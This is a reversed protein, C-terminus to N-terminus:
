LFSGEKLCSINFPTIVCLVKPTGKQLSSQHYQLLSPCRTKLSRDGLDLQTVFTVVSLLLGPLGHTKACSDRSASPANSYQLCLISISTVYHREKSDSSYTLHPQGIHLHQQAQRFLGSDFLALSVSQLSLVENESCYTFYKRHLIKDVCYLIDIIIYTKCFKLFRYMYM